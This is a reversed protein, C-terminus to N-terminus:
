LAPTWYYEGYIDTFRYTIVSKTKELDVNSIVINDPDEVKMSGIEYTEKDGSMPYYDCIFTLEDGTALDADIKAETETVEDDYDYQVGMVYGQENNNDFALYLKAKEGNIQCPVYGKICYDDGNELTETHYYAVTKGNLALWSNDQDPILNGESDFDFVNDLGLDLYGEGVQYLMSKDATQVLSWQGEPMSICEQGQSNEQWILYSKDLCNKAVYGAAELPELGGDELFSSNGSDLGEINARDIGRGSFLSQILQNMAEGSMNSGSGSNGYGFISEFPSTTGGGIAQGSVQMQAFMRICSTYSQDMGIENYTASMSDVAGVRKYPFYISLGYANAVNPSTRNYKVASLLTNALEKAEPTGLRESFHVLDIQDIATSAAFEKAGSRATAITKYDGNKIMSQAKTGFANIDEPVTQSLEALDVVSLTTQQNGRIKASESTFDDVIMKGLDLTPMSTDNSLATLWNTYYWGKGPETEESSILYDARDSLMLATETTAMLCADFGIFDFKVKSNKLAQDIRELSMSKPYSNKQDYGFGSASGGGHDWLILMNRNAPFNKATWAVFSRLTAPDTMAGNGANRELCALKGNTIKYIQNVSSSVVNNRWQKCGGTFVILNVKDSVNANLMEQLDYTGMGGNSELDTGCMYVMITATDKGNGLIKTFKDRAEPAVDRNLQGVNSDSYWGSSTQPTNQYYQQAPQSNGNFINGLGGLTAGGGGFILVIAIIIIKMLGGGGSRTGGSSFHGGGFSSSHGGSFSSSHGGSSHSFGGSGGSSHGGLPKSGSLSNTGGTKFTKRAKPRNDM